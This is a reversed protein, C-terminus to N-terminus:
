FRFYLFPNFSGDALYATVILLLIILVSIELIDFLVKTTKNQELREKAKVVLPTAGIIGILIVFAYNKLTYVFTGSILPLNGAGFMGGVRSLADGMGSASFIAFSIATFFLVYIHSLVKSKGLLKSLFLKEALLLVGFYLGWIVFNWEAGHWFGTLFWVTFINLVFRPLKVRNGGMPIYVYDRFWSGLSIHWRRWFESISKSIFPYRFNEMFDFGMIKGLGIAMDSYGSFDFYVQLMYAVAFLWYFMVSKDDTTYFTDCLEGLTNALIVKKSLGIIFRRIGLSVKEFSHTRSALQKEVDSYRVIPGAILQPFLTIYAGLTIPNKQARVDGRYVDVTYSLIQFTYFSIGIPLAINLLNVSLGTVANFNTIFFDAYKFYALTGLSFVLSLILSIKSVARGRFKEILLGLVYNVAITGLMLFVYIPEGWAYFALSFILIVSNKLVKPVAFYILMVIPLFYYLFPISSFLM